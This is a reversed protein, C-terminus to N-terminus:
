KCFYCSRMSVDSAETDAEYSLCIDIKILMIGLSLIGIIQIFLKSHM